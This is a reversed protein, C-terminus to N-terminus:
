STARTYYKKGTYVVKDWTLRYTSGATTMKEYWHESYPNKNAYGDSSTSVETYTYTPETEAWKDTAGRNDPDPENVNLTYGGLGLSWESFQPCDIYTLRYIVDPQYKTKLDFFGYNLLTCFSAYRTLFQEQSVARIHFNLSINREDKKIDTYDRIVRKGHQLDSKNEVVEKNPAPTMLKSLATEDLSIGGLDLDYWGGVSGPITVNPIRIFAEGAPM